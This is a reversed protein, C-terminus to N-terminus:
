KLLSLIVNPMQNAQALMATAAQQMIQGKTLNATESAFNTDTISSKSTQLNTSQTTLNTSIYSLRNMQSGYTARQTSIYDVAKDVAAAANQFATQWDAVTNNSTMAGLTGAASGGTANSGTIDTGLTMMAAATGATSGTTGTQVNLTNIRIFASSNAGSQFQLNSNNGQGIVIQGPIYNSTTGFTASASNINALAAGIQAATQSQNSKVDFAVGFQGFNVTETNNAANAQLVVSQKTVVGNVTGSLTLYNSGTQAGTLNAAALGTLQSVAPGTVTAVTPLPTTVGTATATYTFVNGGAAATIAGSASLTGSFTGYTTGAGHTASAAITLGFDSQINAATAGDQTVTYTLGQITIQTGKAYGETTSLTVVDMEKTGAAGATIAVTNYSGNTKVVNASPAALIPVSLSTGSSNDFVLTDSNTGSVAGTSITSTSSGGTFTGGTANSLSNQTNLVSATVGGTAINSFANAVQTATAGNTGATFTLGALAFTGNAALSTFQVKTFEDTPNAAAAM